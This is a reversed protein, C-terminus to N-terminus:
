KLTQVFELPKVEDWSDLSYNQIIKWIANDNNRAIVTEGAKPEWLKLVEKVYEAEYVGEKFRFTTGKFTDTVWDGIKFKPEEPKIRLGAVKTVELNESIPKDVWIGKHSLFQIVKGDARAKRLDAYKDDQVYLCPVDIRFMPTYTLEWDNLGLININKAWVQKGPNNHFWKIVEGYKDIQEELWDDSYGM